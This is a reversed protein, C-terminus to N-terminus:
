SSSVKDSFLLPGKKVDEGRQLSAAIEADQDQKSLESHTLTSELFNANAEGHAELVSELAKGQDQGVKYLVEDSKKKQSISTPISLVM